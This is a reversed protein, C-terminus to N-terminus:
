QPAYGKAELCLKMIEGQRMGAAFDNAMTTSPDEAFSGSPSSGTAKAAEFKCEAFDKRQQDANTGPKDYITPAAACGALMLLGFFMATKM